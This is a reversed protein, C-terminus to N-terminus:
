TQYPSRITVKKEQESLLLSIIFPLEHNDHLFDYELHSPLEKLKPSPKEKDNSNAAFLAPNNCDEHIAPLHDLIPEISNVHNPPLIEKINDLVSLNIIDASHCTDKDSPPFRMSKELNFTIIEDGVEFSIKKNYVDIMAHATAFFPRGLIIPIRHDEEMDLIVFDVPFVFKDIKVMVNEAIGKPFQTTKNALEICMRTPKLDGGPDKEKPPVKNLIVASCQENLIIKSAKSGKGKKSLLDKMFKAYKPMQELAEIFPINIHLQQFNGLFKQFQEKEKENKLRGTFPIPLDIKKTNNHTQEPTIKELIPIHETTVNQLGNSDELPNKPPQYNIGSRTTIAHALGRPNTKTFSSLTGVGRGHISEAIRGLNKKITKIASAQNKFTRDYNRKIIWVFIKSKKQMWHAKKIFSSVTEELLSDKEDNPTKYKDFDNKKYEEEKCWSLSHKSLENIAKIGTAPTMRPIPGKFYAKKKTKPDLGQYFNKLQKHENIKHEPCNYLLDNFREWALHLPEDCEQGFNRNAKTQIIIQSLPHYRSLFANKLLDWTTISGASLRNIWLRAKGKLTFHFAMLMVQDRSVGLSQFLNVISTINSIHKLPNEDNNGLFVNDKLEDICQGWFKFKINEEFLPRVIGPGSDVRVKTLYENVTSESQETNSM